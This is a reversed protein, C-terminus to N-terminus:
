QKEYCGIDPLGVPRPNGDLDINVTTALGSNILPSTARPRFNYYKQSVNISDFQPSNNVVGGISTVLPSLNTKVKYLCKNFNINFTNAGIKDAVVEDEVTGFEGWFICNNFSANLNNTLFTNNNQKSYNTVFLVPNKHLINSNSYTAVTCHNFNYTGGLVIGINNGCNTILCNKANISTNIALIGADYANNIICENLVIKPSVNISPGDVVIAQYANNINTYNLVNNKSQGRFIVGPWTAPFDKYPEDLRDGTFKVRTSDWKKGNTILTGDVIFSADAHLYIKTGENITLTATTDVQVNGLIVYPLTKNWITNGTIKQNRLFVANQGYAQLQVFKSNGNYQILVSDQIIFPVNSANPNVNVSVFVYVSDNAAVEINSFQTGSLGDVNMKYFSAAGGKLQINNLLLKKDNLNFIKFNKTVSGVTTFVTDYKLTDSSTSLKADISTIFKDEKKCSFFVGLSIIVFLVGFYKQKYLPM